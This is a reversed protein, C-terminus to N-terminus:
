FIIFMNYRACCLVVSTVFSPVINYIYNESRTITKIPLSCAPLNTHQTNFLFLHNHFMCAHM